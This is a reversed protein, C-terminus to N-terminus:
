SHQTHGGKTVFCDLRYEMEAWVRQLLGPAAASAVLIAQGLTIRNRDPPPVNIVGETKRGRRGCFIGSSRLCIMAVMECISRSMSCRTQASIHTDDAPRRGYRVPRICLSSIPYAFFFFFFFIPSNRDGDTPQMNVIRQAM